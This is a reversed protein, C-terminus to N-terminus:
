VTNKNSQGQDTGARLRTISLTTSLISVCNYFLALVIMAFGSVGSVCIKYSLWAAKITTQKNKGECIRSTICVIHEM